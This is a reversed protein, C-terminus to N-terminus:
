TIVHIEFTSADPSMDVNFACLDDASAKNLRLYHLKLCKKPVAHGWVWRCETDKLAQEAGRTFRYLWHVFDLVGFVSLIPSSLM